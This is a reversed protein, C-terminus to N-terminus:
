SIAGEIAALEEATFDLRQLAGLNEELQKLSSAGFLASTVAPKRLVWALSLQALSQGRGAAIRTLQDLRRSLEGAVDDSKLFAFVEEGAKLSSQIADLYGKARSKEDLGSTLKGSLLGSALPNFSVCGIGERELLALLGNEIWRALLNYNPQHVV